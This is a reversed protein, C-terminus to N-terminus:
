RKFVPMRKEYLAKAGEKFDDTTVLVQQATIEAELTAAIAPKAATDIIKKALGIARPACGILEGVLEETATELDDPSAIRNVLGIEKAEKASVMRGTMILEKARGVGVVAALRSCGGLDPLLGLRTEPIGILADEAMVRLDCALALEMAGGICGGQIKCVTPKSMQEPLNYIELARRRFPVLMQPQESLEKLLGLDMGSSFMPGNGALVVCHVSDDDAAERLQDGLALVLEQNLANRKEPRNLTLIRVVGRDEVLVLESESM